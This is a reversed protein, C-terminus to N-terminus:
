KVVSDVLETSELVQPDIDHIYRELANELSPLTIGKESQLVSYHPRMARFHLEKWSKPHVLGSPLGYKEAAIRALESWTIEGNNSIHWIGKQKDILLDLSANVLDPTYTPSVIIDNAAPFSKGKKLNELVVTVFNFRDWPGFFASTRIILSEPNESQVNQEAM